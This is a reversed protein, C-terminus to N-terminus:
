HQYVHRYMFIDPLMRNKQQQQKQPKPNPTKNQKNSGNVWSVSALPNGHTQPWGLRWLWSWTPWSAVCHSGTTTEFDSCFLLQKSKIKKKFLTKSHLGSISRFSQIYVLRAEFEYFNVQRQNRLAPGLTRAVVGHFIKKKFTYTDRPTHWKGPVPAWPPCFLADPERSSFNSATNLWGIHQSDFEPGRCFHCSSKAVPGDKWVFTMLHRERHRKVWNLVSDRVSGRGWQKWSALPEEPSAQRQGIGTLTVSACCQVMLAM